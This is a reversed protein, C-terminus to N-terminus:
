QNEGASSSFEVSVENPQLYGLEQRIMKQRYRDSSRALRIESRVRAIRAGLEEEKAALRKGENELVLWSVYGMPSVVNLAVITGVAVLGHKWTWQSPHLHRLLVRM